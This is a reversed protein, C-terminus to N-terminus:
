SKRQSGKGAGQAGLLLPGLGWGFIPPCRGMAGPRIQFDQTPGKSCMERVQSLPGHTSGSARRCLWGGAPNNGQELLALSELGMVKAKQSRPGEEDIPETRLRKKKLNM